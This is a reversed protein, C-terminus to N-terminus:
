FINLWDTLAAFLGKKQSQAVSGNSQYRITLDGIRSSKVTNDSGVDEQRVTGMVTFTLSENQVVLTRKGEILLHGGPLVDTVRVTVSGSLSGKNEMSGQGAFKRSATASFSPLAANTWPM